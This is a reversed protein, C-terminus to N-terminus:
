EGQLGRKEERAERYAARLLNAYKVNPLTIHLTAMGQRLIEANVFLKEGKLFVYALTHSNEDRSVQDYELLVTQGELLTKAFLFAQEEISTFPDVTEIVFGEEDKERIRKPPPSPAKLGILRIIEGNSLKFTDASLVKEVMAETPVPQSFLEDSKNSASVAAPISNVLWASLAFVIVFIQKTPTKYM